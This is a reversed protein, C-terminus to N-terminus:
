KTECNWSLAFVTFCFCDFNMLPVSDFSKQARNKGNLHGGVGKNIDYFRKSYLNSNVSIKLYRITSTARGGEGAPNIGM